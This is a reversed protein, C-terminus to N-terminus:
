RNKESQMLKIHFFSTFQFYKLVKAYQFIGKVGIEPAVHWADECRFVLAYQELLLARKMNEPAFILFINTFGYM